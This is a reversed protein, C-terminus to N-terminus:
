DMAVRILYINKDNGTKNMYGTFVYEGGVRLINQGANDQFKEGISRTKTPNLDKDVEVLYADWNDSTVEAYGLLGFGGKENEVFNLTREEGDAGFHKERVRNGALDTEILYVDAKGNPKFGRSYGCLMYGKDLLRVSHSVDHAPTGFTRYWQQKGNADTKVLYADYDGNGTSNTIGTVVFGRDAAEVVSFTRDVKDTGKPFGFTSSWILNGALDLKLLWGDINLKNDAMSYDGAVALANDSTEVLDWARDDFPGGFTKQWKENGNADTCVILADDKGNGQSDTFGCIALDGNKLVRLGWGFDDKSGGFTKQWTVVGNSNTKVLYVDSGGNGYSKTHGVIYYGGDPALRVVVAEDDKPGGIDANLISQSQGVQSAMFLLAIILEKM